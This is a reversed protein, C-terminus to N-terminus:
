SAVCTVWSTLPLALIGVSLWQIRLNDKHQIERNTINGGGDLDETDLDKYGQYLTGM